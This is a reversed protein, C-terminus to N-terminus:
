AKRLPPKKLVQELENAIMRLTEVAHDVQYLNRLKSVEQALSRIRDPYSESRLKM